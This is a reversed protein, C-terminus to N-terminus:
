EKEKGEYNNLIEKTTKVTADIFNNVGHHIGDAIEGLLYHSKCAEQMVQYLAMTTAKSVREVHDQDQKNEEAM